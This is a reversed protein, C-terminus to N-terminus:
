SLKEYNEGKPKQVEVVPCVTVTCFQFFFYGQGTALILSMADQYQNKRITLMWMETEEFNCSEVSTISFLQLWFDSSYFWFDDGRSALM